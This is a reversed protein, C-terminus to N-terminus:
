AQELRKLERIMFLRDGKEYGELFTLNGAQYSKLNHRAAMKLHLEGRAAIRQLKESPVFSERQDYM